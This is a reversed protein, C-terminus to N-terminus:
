AIPFATGQRIEGSKSGKVSQSRDTVLVASFYMIERGPVFIFSLVTLKTLRGTRSM